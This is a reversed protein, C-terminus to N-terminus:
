RSRWVASVFAADATSKRQQAGNSLFALSAHKEPALVLTVTPSVAANVHDTCTLLSRLMHKLTLAPALHYRALM